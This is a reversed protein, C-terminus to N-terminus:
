KTLYNALRLGDLKIGPRRKQIDKVTTLDVRGYPWLDQIEQINGLWNGAFILHPHPFGCNL